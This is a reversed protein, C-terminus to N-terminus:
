LLDAADQARLGPGELATMDGAVVSGDHYRYTYLLRPLQLLWLQGGHGGSNPPPLM